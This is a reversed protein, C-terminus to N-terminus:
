PTEQGSAPAPRIGLASCAARMMLALAAVLSLACLAYQFWATPLRLLNTSLNLMQSLQASKFVTYAILVFIVAGLLGAGVDIARNLRPSFHPEFIDVVIHGDDRACLAMGGFVIIVMTMIVLDQAGYLPMGFNRGIVDVVIVGVVFLLGLTGLFASLSILGDATKQLM